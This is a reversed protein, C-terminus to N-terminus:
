ALRKPGWLAEGGALIDKFAARGRAAEGTEVCLDYAASEIAARESAGV